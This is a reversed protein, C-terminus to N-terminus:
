GALDPDRPDIVIRGASQLRLAVDLVQRQASEIADLGSRGTGEVREEQRIMEARRPSVAALARERLRPSAFRLALAAVHVPAVTFVQALVGQDSLNLDDFVFMREKLAKFLAPSDEAVNQRVDMPAERLIAALIAMGDIKRGGGSREAAPPAVPRKPAAQTKGISLVKPKDATRVRNAGITGERAPPRRPTKAHRPQVPAPLAPRAAAPQKGAKDKQSFGLLELINLKSLPSKAPSGSIAPPRGAKVPANIPTQDTVRPKWPVPKDSGSGSRGYASAVAGRPSLPPRAASEPLRRAASSTAPGQAPAEPRAASTEAKLSALLDRVKNAAAAVAEPEARRAARMRAIFGAQEVEPFYAMAQAALLPPLHALVMAAEDRGLKRLLKYLSAPKAQSLFAFQSDGSHDNM